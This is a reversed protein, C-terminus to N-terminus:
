ASAAHVVQGSPPDVVVRDDDLLPMTVTVQTGVDPESVVELMGGLSEIYDRTEHMGIGMGANGKTTAFPRFLRDRLFNDDMGCGQDRIVLQANAGDRTLSAEVVGDVQSAEQANHILNVIVM